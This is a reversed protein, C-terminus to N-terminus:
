HRGSIASCVRLLDIHLRSTLLPARFPTRGARGTVTELRAM